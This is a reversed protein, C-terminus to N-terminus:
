AGAEFLTHIHDSFHYFQTSGPQAKLQQCADNLGGWGIHALAAAIRSIKQLTLSEDQHLRLQRDLDEICQGLSFFLFIDESEAELAEQCEAAADCIYASNKNANRILQNLEAYAQASLVGRLDLINNQAYQFQSAFSAPHQPDAALENLSGADFAPLCFAHAYSRAAEDDQFPFLSCLYQTRTLYRGLWFIHEANSNLLIM